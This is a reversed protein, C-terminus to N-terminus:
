QKGWVNIDFAIDSELFHLDNIKDKNKQSANWYFPTMIFVNKIDTENNLQMKETIEHNDLATYSKPCAEKEHNEPHEYIFSKLGNLHSEGPTISIVIGNSSLKKFAKEYNIPSNIKLIIDVSNDALPIDNHSAVFWSIDKYSKASTKVAEKSIDMGYCFAPQKLASHINHTFFGDGCGIDLLCCNNFREFIYKDILEACPAILADYYHKNLFERRSQIMIKNDGPSKSKKQQVPLLNVYGEKAIDFCHNNECIFSKNQKLLKYRCIPCIYQPEQSPAKIM